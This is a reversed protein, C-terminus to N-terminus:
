KRYWHMKEGLWGDNLCYSKLVILTKIIKQLEELLYVLFLLAM